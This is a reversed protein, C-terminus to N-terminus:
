GYDLFEILAIRGGATGIYPVKSVDIDHRNSDRYRGDYAARIDLDEIDEDVLAIVYRAAFPARKCTQDEVVSKRLSHSKGCPSQLRDLLAAFRQKAREGLKSVDVGPVEAGAAAVPAKPAKPDKPELDDLAQGVGQYDDRTRGNNNSCAAALVASLAIAATRFISLKGRV